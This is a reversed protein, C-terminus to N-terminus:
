GLKVSAHSRTAFSRSYYLHKLERGPKEIEAKADARDVDSQLRSRM